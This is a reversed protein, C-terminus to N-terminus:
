SWWEVSMVGNAPAIVGISAIGDVSIFPSEVAPVTKSGGTSASATAISAAGNPNYYFIAGLSMRCFRAGTPVAIAQATNAVLVVTEITDSQREFFKVSNQDAFFALPQM